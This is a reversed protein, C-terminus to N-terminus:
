KKVKYIEEAAYVNGNVALGWILFAFFLVGTFLGKGIAFNVFHIIMQVFFVFAIFLIINRKRKAGPIKEPSKISTELPKANDIEDIFEDYRSRKERGGSIKHRSSAGTGPIGTNLYVGNKGMNASLGRGGVTTSIGSGSINIKVGPAIKIRKGFKV